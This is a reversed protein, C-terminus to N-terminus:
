RNKGHSLEKILQRVLQASRQSALPLFEDFTMPSEKGAVDSIARIVVFPIHFLHCVQAIAAGEMEVAAMEPFNARLRDIYEPDHVFTDGSGIQGLVIQVSSPLEGSTHLLDACRHASEVVAKDSTFKAPLGPVQGLAYGFATVNFDHQLLTTAILIDGFTLHPDLGGASGTNIIVQPSYKESLLTCAAAANVKGIGCQVLVVPTKSLEGTWFTFEGKTVPLPNELEQRLLKVEEEMAGIIGIM